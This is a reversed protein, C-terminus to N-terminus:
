GNQYLVPTHCVCLCVVVAYVASLMATARYFRTLSDFISTLIKLPLDYVTTEACAVHLYPWFDVLISRISAIESAKAHFRFRRSLFYYWMKCRFHVATCILWNDALWILNKTAGRARQSVRSLYDSTLNRDARALFIDPLVSFNRKKISKELSTQGIEIFNPTIPPRLPYCVRFFKTSSQDM